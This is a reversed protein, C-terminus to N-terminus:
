NEKSRKRSPRRRGSNPRHRIRSSYGTIRRTPVVGDGGLVYSHTIHYSGTSQATALHIAGAMLVLLFARM